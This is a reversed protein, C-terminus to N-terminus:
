GLHGATIMREVAVSTARALSAAASLKDSRLQLGTLTAAGGDLARRLPGWLVRVGELLLYAFFATAWEQVLRPVPVAVVHKSVIRDALATLHEDIREVDDLLDGSMLWLHGLDAGVNGIAMREWDTLVLDSPRMGLNASWLDGHVVTTSWGRVLAHLTREAGAAVAAVRRSRWSYISAVDPPSDLPVEAPLHALAAPRPRPPHVNRGALVEFRGWCPGYLDALCEVVHSANARTVPHAGVEPFYELIVCEVDAHGPVSGLPLRALPRPVRIRVGLVSTV